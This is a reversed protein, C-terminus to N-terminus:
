KKKGLDIFDKLALYLALFVGLISFIILFTNSEKNIKEDLKLGAWVAVLIVAIMQFAM